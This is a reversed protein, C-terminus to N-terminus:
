GNGSIFLKLKDMIQEADEKTLKRRVARVFPKKLEAWTIWIEMYKHGENDWDVLADIKSEPYKM